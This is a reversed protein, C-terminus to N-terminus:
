GGMGCRRGRLGDRIMENADVFHSEDTVESTRAVLRRKGTESPEM